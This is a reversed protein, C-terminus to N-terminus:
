QYVRGTLTATQNRSSSAETNAATLTVKAYPPIIFPKWESNSSADQGTKVELSIVEQDNLFAKYRFDNFVAADAYYFNIKCVIYHAGISFELLTYDTDQVAGAGVLGSYAFAHEGVYTIGRGVGATGGSGLPNGGGTIPM